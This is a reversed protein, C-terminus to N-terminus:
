QSATPKTLSEIKKAVNRWARVGEVNDSIALAGIREAVFIHTEEVHQKLVTHACAWLEWENLHCPM